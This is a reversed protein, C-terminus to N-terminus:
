GTIGPCHRDEDGWLHPAHRGPAGCREPTRQAWLPDFALEERDVAMRLCLYELALNANSMYSGTRLANDISALLAELPAAPQPEEDGVHDAVAAACAARIAEGYTDHLTYGTYLPSRLAQAEQRYYGAATKGSRRLVCYGDAEDLEPYGDDGAVEYVEYAGGDCTRLEALRENREPFYRWHARRTCTARDCTHDFNGGHVAILRLAELHAALAETPPPTPRLAAM